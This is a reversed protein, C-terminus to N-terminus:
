KDADHADSERPEEAPVSAVDGLSATARPESEGQSEQIVSNQTAESAAQAEAPKGPEHAAGEEQVEVIDESPGTFEGKSGRGTLVADAVMETYIRIARIADDNGPIVVDINDPSCNTDVVAIVPIGLKRAEDVAIKEFGVDIVFLADPLSTMEKIGGIGRELKDRERHLDLGERKSLKRISGDEIMQELDHLRQISNKVTKFNTLMGGLWRHNVFPMGCRQAQKGVAERAARKTGVFMVNGGNASLRSIYNYADKILPLTEELNIIHIKNRHGFIYPAMKPNWYRTRHGFHVGAELLQRMSVQSM